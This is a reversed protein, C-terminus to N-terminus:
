GVGVWGRVGHALFVERLDLGDGIFPRLRLVTEGETVVIGVFDHALLGHALVQAEREGVPMRQLAAGAIGEAARRTLAWPVVAAAADVVRLTHGICAKLHHLLETEAEVAEVIAIDRRLQVIELGAAVCQISNGIM